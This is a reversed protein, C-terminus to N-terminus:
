GGGSNTGGRRGNQCFVRGGHDASGEKFHERPSEERSGDQIRVAKALGSRWARQASDRSQRLIRIRFPKRLPHPQRAQGQKGVVQRFDCVWTFAHERGLDELPDARAIGEIELIEAARFGSFGALNKRDQEEGGGDIVHGAPDAIWIRDVEESPALRPIGRPGEAQIPHIGAM